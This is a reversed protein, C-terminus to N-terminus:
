PSTRKRKPAPPSASVKPRIKRVLLISSGPNTISPERELEMHWSKAAETLEGEVDQGKPAILLTNEAAIASAYGLLKVLPALARATIVDPKQGRYNEVRDPIVQVNSLGMAVAAEGLFAAKKGVSEILSASIGREAGFAALLLGPFGAGSGIDAFSRTNTPFYRWLQASDRFHRDWRQDITSRAILNHRESADLLQADFARLRAMTERSVAFEEAFQEPGYSMDSLYARRLRSDIV